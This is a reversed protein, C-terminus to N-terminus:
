RNLDKSALAPTLGSPATLAYRMADSSPQSSKVVSGPYTGLMERAQLM